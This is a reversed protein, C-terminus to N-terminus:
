ARWAPEPADREPAHTLSSGRSAASAAAMRHTQDSGCGRSGATWALGGSPPPARPHRPVEPGPRATPPAGASQAEHATSSQVEARPTRSLVVRPQTYVSLTTAGVTHMVAAADPKQVTHPFGSGAM